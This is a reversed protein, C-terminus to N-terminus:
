SGRRYMSVQAQPGFLSEHFESDARIREVIPASVRNFADETRPRATTLFIFASVNLDAARKWAREVDSEAYGLSTYLCQYPLAQEVKRQYFYFSASNANFAPLELGIINYRNMRDSTCTHEIVEHLLARESPNRTLPLLWPSNSLRQPAGMGLAEMNVLLSETLLLVLCICAIARSYFRLVYFTIFCFYPLLPLLYRTERNIQLSFVGLVIGIQVLCAILCTDARNWPQRSRLRLILGAGVGVFWIVACPVTLFFAYVTQLSWFKLTEIFAARQGYLEAVTGSSTSALFATLTTWNLVYWAATLSGGVVSSFVLLVLSFARPKDQSKEAFCQWLILLSLPLTYLPTSVKVAVGFVNALLLHLFKESRARPSWYNELLWMVALVQLPEVFFQHTLGVLLPGSSFFCLACCIPLVRGSASRRLARWLLWSSISLSLVILTLLAAEFSGLVHRLPVFFQGLWPLAPAKIGLVHLMSSVWATPEHTLEFYLRLSTEGYWAPDWPWVSHDLLVWPVAPLLVVLLGLVLAAYLSSPAEPLASPNRNM